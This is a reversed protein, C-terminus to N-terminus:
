SAYRSRLVEMTRRTWAVPGSGIEVVMSKAALGEVFCPCAAVCVSQLGGAVM